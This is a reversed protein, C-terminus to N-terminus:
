HCFFTRVEMKKQAPSAVTTKCVIIRYLDNKIVALNCLKFCHKKESLNEISQIYIGIAQICLPM